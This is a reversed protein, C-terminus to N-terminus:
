PRPTPATRRATCVNKPLGGHTAHNGLSPPYQWMRSASEHAAEQRVPCTDMRVAGRNIHRADVMLISGLTMELYLTSKHQPSTGHM